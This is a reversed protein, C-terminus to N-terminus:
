FLIELIGTYFSKGMHMYYAGPSDDFRIKRGLPFLILYNHFLQLIILHCPTYQREIHSEQAFHSVGIINCTCISTNCSSGTNSEM